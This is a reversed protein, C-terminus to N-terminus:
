KDNLLIKRVREAMHLYGEFFHSEYENEPMEYDEVQVEKLAENYIRQLNKINKQLKENEIKIRDYNEGAEVWKRKYRERESVQEEHREM